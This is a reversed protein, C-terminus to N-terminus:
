LPESTNLLSKKRGDLRVTVGKTTMYGSKTLALFFPCSFYWWRIELVNILLIFSICKQINHKIQRKLCQLEKERRDGTRKGRGWYGRDSLHMHAKGLERQSRSLWISFIYYQSLRIGLERYVWQRVLRLASLPSTACPSPKQLTEASPPM